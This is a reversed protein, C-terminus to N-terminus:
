HGDITLTEFVESKCDKLLQSFKLCMQGQCQCHELDYVFATINTGMSTYKCTLNLLAVVM